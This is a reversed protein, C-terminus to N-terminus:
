QITKKVTPWVFKMVVQCRSRGNQSSSHDGVPTPIKSRGIWTTRASKAATDTTKIAAVPKRRSTASRTPNTSTMPIPITYKANLSWGTAPTKARTHTGRIKAPSRKRRVSERDLTLPPDPDPRAAGVCGLAGSVESRCSTSFLRDKQGTRRPNTTVGFATISRSRTEAVFTASM